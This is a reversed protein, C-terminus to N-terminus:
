LQDGEVALMSLEVARLAWRSPGDAPPGAAVQAERGDSFRLTQSDGLVVSGADAMGGPVALQAVPIRLVFPGLPLSFVRPQHDAWQVSLSLDTVLSEGSLVCSAFAGAGLVVMAAPLAAITDKAHTRGHQEREDDSLLFGRYLYPWHDSVAADVRLPPTFALRARVVRAPQGAVVTYPAVDHTVVANAGVVAGKGVTIGNKIAVGWGIWCDDEISVRSQGHEPLAGYVRDQDRILMSPSRFAYHDGSSIFINASLLCYRGIDVKGLLYTGNHLSSGAGIRIAAGAMPAIQCRRAIKVGQGLDISIRSPAPGPVGLLEAGDAIAVGDGCRIFDVGSVVVGSALRLSTGRQAHRFVLLAAAGIRQLRRAVGWLLFRGLAIWHDTAGRSSGRSSM